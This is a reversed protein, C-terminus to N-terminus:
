TARETPPHSASTTPAPQRASRRAALFALAGVAATLLGSAVMVRASSLATEQPGAASAGTTLFATAPGALGISAPLALAACGRAFAVGHSRLPEPLSTVSLTYGVSTIVPSLASVTVSAVIWLAPGRGWGFLAQGAIGSVVVATALGLSEPVQKRLLSLAFGGGVSAVAGATLVAALVNTGDQSLGLVIPARLNQRVGLFLNALTLVVVIRRYARYRLLARYGVREGTTGPASAEAASALPLDPTTAVALALVAFSVLDCCLVVRMGVTEYLVAALGPAAAFALANLSQAVGQLRTARGDGGLRLLLRIFAPDQVGITAGALTNTFVLMWPELAGTMHLALLAFSATAGGACAALMLTRSGLRRLVPGTLFSALAGAAYGCFLILSWTAVGKTSGLVWVSFVFATAQNGLLSAGQGFLLCGLRTRSVEADERQRITSM